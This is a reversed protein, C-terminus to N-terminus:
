EALLQALRAALQQQRLRYMEVAAVLDHPHDGTTARGVLDALKDGSVQDSRVVLDEQGVSRAFDRIKPRYEIAVFPTGGAAAIVAAHLREAVVVGARALLELGTEHDAYAAVYEADITDSNRMIEMIFRDDGPHCSLYAVRRGENRLSTALGALAAFVDADSGGWLEGDTHAPSVVVLDNEVVISGSPRVSLGPDGIIELSGEYGWERLIAESRPGRVGVHACSDLFDLWQDIPETIGWYDPDAVGTGFVVREVRPSDHRRLSELYTLRNILTGGGLMLLKAGPAEYGVNTDPLLERLARLMIEDGFNQRGLWGIYSVGPKAETSETAAMSGPAGTNLGVPRYPKRQARAAAFRALAKAKRKAGGKTLDDLLQSREGTIAPFEDPLADTKSLAPLAVLGDRLAKVDSLGEIQKWLAAPSVDAKAVKAWERRRALAFVPLDGWARDLDKVAEDYLYVTKGDGTVVQYGSRVISSRPNSDLRRVARSLMRHDLSAWGHLLAVYEGRAAAIAAQFQRGPEDHPPIVTVRPDGALIEGLQDVESEGGMFFVEFDTFNQKLLQKWLDAARKAVTPAVVWSVKPVEYIYGRESKRYFRHPIKAQIIGDNAERAKQRWDPSDGEDAQTQHYIAADNEPVFFLGANFLRWGLETDEGGWRGFDEAFGGVANFQERRISFNSSVLSRFAEDGLRLGATRRYFVRRFDDPVFSEDAVSSSAIQERLGADGAVLAARDIGSTDLHHRSGIVVLNDSRRHWQAHRKVLDPDPICDADIFVLVDADSHAAGLNRARGAGYGRHEQRVLTVDLQGAVAALAKSTDEESGDDAVIVEVQEYTQAVLGALTNALLDIRNYVPIVVAVRPEPGPAVTKVARYDNEAAVHKTM